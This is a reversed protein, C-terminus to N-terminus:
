SFLGVVTSYHHLAPRGATSPAIEAHGYFGIMPLGPFYERFMSVETPADASQPLCRSLSPFILAFSPKAAFSEKISELQQRMEQEASDSNQRAWSLSQGAVVEGSLLVRKNPLDVSVIHLIRSNDNIAALYQYPRQIVEQHQSEPFQSLLNECADQRDIELICHNEARNIQKPQSLHKLGDIKVIKSHTQPVLVSHCYERETISGSQWLSYPGHGFEDSCVAGFQTQKISNIAIAAAQPSSLTLNWDSQNGFQRAITHPRLGFDYPFVLAVAGEVDLLTEHENFVSLACCGTIEPTGAAKAAERIAEQPAHAYGTTLFLLVSGITTSAMKQKAKLVAIRAHEPSALAGSSAGSAVVLESILPHETTLSRIKTSACIVSLVPVM